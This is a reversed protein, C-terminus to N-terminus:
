VRKNLTSFFTIISIDDAQTKSLLKVLFNNLKLINEKNM